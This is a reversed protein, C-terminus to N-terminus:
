SIMEGLVIICSLVDLYYKPQIFKIFRELLIPLFPGEDSCLVFNEHVQKTNLLEQKHKFIILSIILIINKCIM